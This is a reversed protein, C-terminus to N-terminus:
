YLTYEIKPWKELLISLKRYEFHFMARIAFHRELYIVKQTEALERGM